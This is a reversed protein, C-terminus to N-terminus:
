GARRNAEALARLNGYVPRNLHIPQRVAFPMKKSLENIHDNTLYADLLGAGIFPANM